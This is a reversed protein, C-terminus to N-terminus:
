ERKRWYLDALPAARDIITDQDGTHYALLVVICPSAREDVLLVARHGSRDLNIQWLNINGAKAGKLQQFQWRTKGLDRTGAPTRKKWASFFEDISALAKNYGLPHPRGLGTLAKASAEFEPAVNHKCLGRDIPPNPEGVARVFGKRRSRDSM